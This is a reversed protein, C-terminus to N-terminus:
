IMMSSMRWSWPPNWARTRGEQMETWESMWLPKGPHNKQMYNMFREKDARKSWYSHISLHPLADWVEPDSALKEIYVDSSKWEGLSLCPYSCM